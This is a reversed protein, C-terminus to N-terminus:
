NVIMIKCVAGSSSDNNKQSAFVYYVGTPVRRGNANCGNWEFTGSQAKGQYLVNGASDAIKILSNEMLGAIHIPGFYDHRVPNPYAYIENFDSHVAQTSYDYRFLGEGTGVLIESRGPIVKATFVINSILPSNDKHYIDIIETGNASVYYLGDGSTSIWKRNAGDTSIDTVLTSGLLYDAEGSGDNRPIKVHTVAAEGDRVATPDSFIYVGQDTGLWVRGNNDEELATWRVPNIVKGDQDVLSRVIAYSDDSFNSPTGNTNYFLIGGSHQTTIIMMNSKKCELVSVDQTTLFNGTNLVIWDDKTVESPNLRVKDAPLVAVGDSVAWTTTWLNGSRDIHCSGCYQGWLQNLPSNSTDYYGVVQNNKVKALAEYESAVWYADKDTPDFSMWTVGPIYKGFNKQQNIAPQLHAEVPWATINTIRDTNLDLVSTTQASMASMTSPSLYRISNGNRANIAVRNNAMDPVIQMVNRTNLDEPVFRDSLVTVGGDEDAQLHILGQGNLAYIEGKNNVGRVIDLAYQEPLNTLKKHEDTKANYYFVNADATYIFEDDSSPYINDVKSATNNIVKSTVYKNTAPNLQMLTLANPKSSGTLVISDNVGIMWSRSGIGAAHVYNDWQSPNAKRDLFYVQGNIALALKDGVVAGCNVAHPLRCIQVIEHTRENIKIMGFSTGLYVYDGDWIPQYYTFNELNADRLEPIYKVSGDAYMFDLGRSDYNILMYNRDYNYWINKVENDNLKNRSNYSTTEDAAPDYGFLRAGSVYFLENGTYLMATPSPYFYDYVTWNGGWATAAVM